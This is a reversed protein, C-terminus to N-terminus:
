STTGAKGHRRESRRTESALKKLVSESPRIIGVPDYCTAGNKALRGRSTERTRIAPSQGLSQPHHVLGLPASARSARRWRRGGLAARTSRTLEEQGADGGVVVEGSRQGSAGAPLQSRAITSLRGDVTRTDHRRTAGSL